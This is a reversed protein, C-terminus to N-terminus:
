EKILRLVYQNGRVMVKVFYVGNTLGRLNLMGKYEIGEVRRGTLEFLEIGDILEEDIGEVKVELNAPNPVLEIKRRSNPKVTSNLLKLDDCEDEQPNYIDGKSRYECFTFYEGDFVCEYHKDPILYGAKSEWMNGRREYKAKVIGIGEIIEISGYSWFPWMEWLTAYQIVRSIGGIEVESLSDILYVIPDDCWETKIKMIDWINLNFNYIQKFTDSELYYVIRDDEYVVFEEINMQFTDKSAGTLDITYTKRKLVKCEVGLVITDGEVSM